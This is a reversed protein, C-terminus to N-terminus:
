SCIITNHRVLGNTSLELIKDIYKCMRTCSNINNKVCWSTKEFLYNLNSIKKTLEFHNDCDSM